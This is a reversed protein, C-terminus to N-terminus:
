IKNNPCLDVVGGLGIKVDHSRILFFVERSEGPESQTVPKKWLDLDSSADAPLEEIQGNCIPSSLGVELSALPDFTPLSIKGRSRPSSSASDPVPSQGASDTEEWDPTYVGDDGKEAERVLQRWEDDKDAREEDSVAALEEELDESEYGTETVFYGDEAHIEEPSSEEEEMEICAHHQLRGAFIGAQHTATNVVLVEADDGGEGLIEDDDHYRITNRYSPPPRRHSPRSAHHLPTALCSSSVLPSTGCSKRAPSCDRSSSLSADSDEEVEVIPSLALPVCGNAADYNIFVGGNPGRMITPGVGEFMVEGDLTDEVDEPFDDDKLRRELFSRLESFEERPKPISYPCEFEGEGSSSESSADIGDTTDELGVHEQLDIPAEDSTLSMVYSHYSPPNEQISPVSEELVKEHLPEECVPEEEEVVRDWTSDEQLFDEILESAPEASHCVLGNTSKLAQFLDLGDEERPGFTVGSQTPADTIMDELPPLNASNRASEIGSDASSGFEESNKGHPRPPMLTASSKLQDLSVRHRRRPSTVATVANGRDDELSDESREEESDTFCCEILNTPPLVPVTTVFNSLGFPPSYSNVGGGGRSDNLTPDSGSLRNSLRLVYGPEEKSKYFVDSNGGGGNERSSQQVETDVKYPINSESITIRHGGSLHSSPDDFGNKSFHSVGPGCTRGRGNEQEDDSDNLVTLRLFDHM